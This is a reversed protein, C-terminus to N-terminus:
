KGGEPKKDTTRRDHTPAPGLNEVKREIPYGRPVEESMSQYDSHIPGDQDEVEFDDADEFAELGKQHLEAQAVKNNVIRAIMAELPEPHHYGLPLSVPKNDPIQCNNKDFKADM